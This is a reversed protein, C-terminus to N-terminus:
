SASVIGAEIGLMSHLQEWRPGVPGAEVM